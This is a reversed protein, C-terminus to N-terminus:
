NKGKENKDSYETTGNDGEDEDETDEDSDTDEDTDEDTSKDTGQQHYAGLQFFVLGYRM